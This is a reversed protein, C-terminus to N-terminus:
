WYVIFLCVSIIPLESLTILLGSGFFKIVLNLFPHLTHSLSSLFSLPPPPFLKPFWASLWLQFFSSPPPPSLHNRVLILLLFIALLIILTRIIFIYVDSLCALIHELFDLMKYMLDELKFSSKIERNFDEIKKEEGFHIAKSL